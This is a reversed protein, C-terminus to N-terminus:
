LSLTTSRLNCLLNLIPAKRISNILNAMLAISNLFELVEDFPASDPALVSMFTIGSEKETYLLRYVVGDNSEYCEMNVLDNGFWKNRSMAVHTKFLQNETDIVSYDPVEKIREFM